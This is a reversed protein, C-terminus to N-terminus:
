GADEEKERGTVRDGRGVDDVLLESALQSVVDPFVQALQVLVFRRSSSREERRGWTAWKRRKIKGTLSFFVKKRMKTHTMSTADQSPMGHSRSGAPLGTATFKKLDVRRQNFSLVILRTMMQLNYVCPISLLIFDSSLIIIIDMMKVSSLSKEKRHLM